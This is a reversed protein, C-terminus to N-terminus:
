TWRSNWSNIQFVLTYSRQVPRSDVCSSAVFDFYTISSYNTSTCGSRRSSIAIMSFTEEIHRLSRVGSLEKLAHPNCFIM